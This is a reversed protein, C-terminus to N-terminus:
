SILASLVKILSPRKMILKKVAPAFNEKTINHLEEKNLEKFIFNLDDDGLREMVKRLVLRKQLKNSNISKWKEEYEKKLFSEELKKNKFAKVLAEGAIYGAQMALAIGGGHIPDVQKAATGIVLARGKVFSKLPAGVSIVGGFDLLTSSNRLQEHEEMFKDLYYKPDAGKLNGRKTNTTIHGGVGVGVNAKKDKKPFIWVYGRPAIENGFYLEIMEEHEYPIVEYEYCTDVDYPKHVTPFGLKRAILAEMGEASVVVKADVEFAKRGGHKVNLTYHNKRVKVDEVKHYVKLKAGEKTALEALWKDFFKRELVYGGEEIVLPNAKNPPYLKAGRVELSYCEKPLELNQNILEVKGLAEGCRVPNGVEKKKEFMIVNLGNKACIRALTSGAPGAGVIAVDYM